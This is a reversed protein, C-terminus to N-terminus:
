SDLFGEVAERFGAPNDINALHKANPVVALRADPVADAMAQMVALPAAPDDEGAVFLTPTVIRGLHERYALKQLALGCAIYGPISTRLVMASIAGVPGPNADRFDQSLWRDLTEPLISPMGGANVKAMRKDWDRVVPEPADARADCCVLRELREPHTLALGLGTMGGLSLGM